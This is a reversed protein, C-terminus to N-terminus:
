GCAGSGAGFCGYSMSGACWGSDVLKHRLVSPRMISGFRGTSDAGHAVRTGIQLGSVGSGVPAGSSSTSSRDRV